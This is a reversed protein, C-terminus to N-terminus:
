EAFHTKAVFCPPPVFMVQPYSRVARLSSRSHVAPREANPFRMGAPPQCVTRRSQERPDVIGALWM